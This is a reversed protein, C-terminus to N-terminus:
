AQGRERRLVVKPPDSVSLDQSTSENFYVEEEKESEISIKSYLLSEKKSKTSVRPQKVGSDVKVKQTKTKGTSVRSVSKEAINQNGIDMSKNFTEENSEAMVASKPPRGRKKANAVQAGLNMLRTPPSSLFGCLPRIKRSEFNILLKKM